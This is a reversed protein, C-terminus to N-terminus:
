IIKCIFLWVTLRL